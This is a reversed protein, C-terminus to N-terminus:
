LNVLKKGLLKVVRQNPLFCNDVSLTLVTCVKNCAPPNFRRYDVGDAVTFILHVNTCQQGLSADLQNTDNNLERIKKYDKPYTHRLTEELFNMLNRSIGYNLPHALREEVAEDVVLFYIQHNM